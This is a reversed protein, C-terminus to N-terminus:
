STPRCPGEIALNRIFEDAETSSSTLREVTEDDFARDVPAFLTVPLPQAFDAGYGGVRAIELLTSFRGDDSLM